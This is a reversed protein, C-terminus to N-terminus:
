QYGTCLFPSLDRHDVDLMLKDIHLTVEICDTRESVPNSDLSDAGVTHQLLHGTGAVSLVDAYCTDYSLPLRGPSSPLGQIV